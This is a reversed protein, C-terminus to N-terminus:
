VNNVPTEQLKKGIPTVNPPTVGDECDALGVGTLGTKVINSIKLSRRYHVGQAQLARELARIFHPKSSLSVNNHKCWQRYSEWLVDGHIRRDDGLVLRDEAFQKLPSSIDILASSEEISSEPMSFKSNQMLRRLGEVAWSTIAPAEPRLRDFLTLDEKGLFSKTFKLVLWRNPAAGSDDAMVPIGNCAIALKCNLRGKWPDQNYLLPISIPENATIKNFQSHVTSIDRIPPRKADRDVALNTTRIGSLAKNDVLQALSIDDMSDGLILGLMNFITGKGSRSVGDLAIAKEHGLNHSILCWGMIEQLLIIRSPEDEFINQLFAIWEPCEAGPTYDVTLTTANFNNLDHPQVGLDPRDPDYVGNRFYIRQSAPDLRDHSPVMNRLQKETGDVNGSKGFESGVFAHAVAANLDSKGVPQWHIGTWWYMESGFRALRDGFVAQRLMGANQIHVNGLANVPSVKLERFMTVQSVPQPLVLPTMQQPSTAKRLEAETIKIGHDKLTRQLTATLAARQISNCKLERIETTICDLSEPKGGEENIRAILQEITTLAAGQQAETPNASFLEGAISSPVYGNQIAKHAITGLTTTARGDDVTPKITAWLKRAEVPDYASGGTMSWNDFLMWGTGDDDHYHHKLALGVSLWESRPCDADICKLMSEVEASNRDGSPLPTPEHQTETVASLSAVAAAPLIPLANPAALKLIGVPDDSGYAGGACIYGRGSVRTDFGKGIQNAFLDSGQRVPADVRFAYHQGGSPTNQLFAESWDLHGLAQTIADTSMGKHADIDFVVVNDPISVGILDSPWYDGPKLSASKFGGKVAPQKNDWCPFIPVGSATLLQAIEPQSM